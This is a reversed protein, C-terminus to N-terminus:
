LLSVLVHSTILIIIHTPLAAYMLLQIKKLIQSLRRSSSNAQVGQFHFGTPDKVLSASYTYHLMLARVHLCKQLPFDILTIYEAMIDNTAQGTRSYKEM